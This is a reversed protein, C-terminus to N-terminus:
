QCVARKPLMLLLVQKLTMLKLTMLKLTMLKPAADSTRRKFDTLPKRKGRARCAQPSTHLAKHTERPGLM